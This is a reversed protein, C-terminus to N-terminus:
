ATVASHIWVSATLIVRNRSPEMATDPLSRDGRIRTATVVADDHSFDPMTVLAARVTRGLTLAEPLGGTAGAYCDIQFYFEVLHDHRSTPDQPAALQTVMVWSTGRKDGDPPTSVVRTAVEDRLYDSLIKQGYPIL